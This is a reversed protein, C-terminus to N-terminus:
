AGPIARLQYVAHGIAVVTGDAAKLETDLVFDAKGAEAVKATIAAITEESMSMEVDIDTMAPRVFKVEISKVIPLYKTVDFTSAYLLGLPFEALMCLAGAYMIQVHNTNGELPMRCKAYGRRTELVQLGSRAVFPISKENLEVVEGMKMM